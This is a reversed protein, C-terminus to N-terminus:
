IAWHWLMSVQNTLLKLLSFDWKLQHLIQCYQFIYKYKRRAAGYGYSLHQKDDDWSGDKNCSDFEPRLKSNFNKIENMFGGKQLISLKLLM